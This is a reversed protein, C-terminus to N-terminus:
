QVVDVACIFMSLECKVISSVDHYLVCMVVYSLPLTCLLYADMGLVLNSDIIIIM